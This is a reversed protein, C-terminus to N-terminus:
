DPFSSEAGDGHADHAGDGPVSVSPACHVGLRRKLRWVYRADVGFGERVSEAGSKKLARQVTRWPIGIHKAETQVQRAPMPGAALLQRLWDATDIYGEDETVISLADDASLVVATEEWEVRPAGNDALGIRYALGSADPGLNNKSPLLLRREPNVKDKTVVFSARAAAVFALSGSVRYLASGGGGDGGKNLHSVAIIAVRYHAALEGLPQLLARVDSNKHSDTAGLYATLPDITVLRVDPHEELFLGIAELDHQLSLMRSAEGPVRVSKLIHVRGADAGAADLRPRITDGPDDEGSVLLVSGRPCESGDVPWALGCTVHAAMCATLMSKGLGPDGAILTLKGLAIRGPWLWRIPEPKVDQACVTVLRQTVQVARPPEM